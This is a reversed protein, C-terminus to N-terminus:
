DSINGDYLVFIGSRYKLLIAVLIDAKKMLM